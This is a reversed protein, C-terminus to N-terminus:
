TTPFFEMEGALISVPLQNIAPPLPCTAFHTYACPPNYTRNFDIRVIGNQPAESTLFRGGSYTLSGNSADKFMFWLRGDELVIPYLKCTQGELTFEAYGPCPEQSIDGVVSMIAIQMPEELEHYSAQITYAEEIPFWRVNVFKRREPSHEDYVRVGYRIGRQIVAFKIHNLYIWDSSAYQNFQIELHNVPQENCTMHAGPAAQLIVKKDAVIITGSQERGADRPLVVDNIANTGLSNEGDKLWYLGTISLWGDPAGLKAEYRKRWDKIENYYTSDM